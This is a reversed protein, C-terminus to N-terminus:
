KEGAVFKWVEREMGKRRTLRVGMRMGEETPMPMTEALKRWGSEPLEVPGGYLGEAEWGVCLAAGLGLIETLAFMRGPCLHKGGGFPLFALRQLREQPTEDKRLTSSSANRPAYSPTRHLFRSPRFEDADPGWIAPSRHMIGAPLQLLNGKKLLYTNTGDTVTTDATVFRLSVQNSQLRLMENWAAFLHPCSPLLKTIDLTNTTIGNTVTTVTISKAEEAVAAVLSPSSFLYSLFWFLTPITNSTANFLLTLELKGVEDNNFGFSRHHKARLNVYPISPDADYNNAYFDAYAKQLTLRAQYTKKAIVSSLIQPLLWLFNCNFEWFPELLDPGDPPFIPNHQKGYMAVATVKTFFDRCWNYLSKAEFVDDFSNLTEAIEAMAALNMKTLSPGTQLAQRSARHFGEMFPFRGGVKGSITKMAHPGIDVMRDALM